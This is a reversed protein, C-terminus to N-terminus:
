KEVGAALATRMATISGALVQPMKPHVQQAQIHQIRRHTVEINSSSEYFYCRFYPGNIQIDSVFTM